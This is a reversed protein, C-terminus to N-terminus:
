LYKEGIRRHQYGDNWCSELKEDDLFANIDSDGLMDFAIDIEALIKKIIIYDRRQM